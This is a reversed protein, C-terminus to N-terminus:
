CPQYCGLLLAVKNFFIYCEQIENQQKMFVSLSNIQYQGNLSNQSNQISRTFHTSWRSHSLILVLIKISINSIILNLILIINHAIFSIQFSKKSYNFQCKSYTPILIPTQCFPWFHSHGFHPFHSIVFSSLKKMTTHAQM